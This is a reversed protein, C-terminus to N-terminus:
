LIFLYIFVLYVHIHFPIGVKAAFFMASVKKVFSSILAQLFPALGKIAM